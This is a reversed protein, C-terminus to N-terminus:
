DRVAQEGAAGLATVGRPTGSTSISSGVVVRERAPISGGAQQALVVM